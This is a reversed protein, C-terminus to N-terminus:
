IFFEERIEEMVQKKVDMMNPEFIMMEPSAERVVQWEM